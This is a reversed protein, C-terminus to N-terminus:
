KHNKNARDRKKRKASRKRRSKRLIILEIPEGWLNRMIRKERERVKSKNM